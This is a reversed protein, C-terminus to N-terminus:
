PGICPEPDQAAIYIIKAIQERFANSNPRFYPRQRSDCPEGPGGCAYGTIATRCFLTGIYANFPDNAPVDAFTQGLIQGVTPWGAGAVIIKALQARTVLASPRFYPRQESDCPENSGGCTYGTVVGDDAAAEVYQFYTNSPTVDAFTYQGAPPLTGGLDFALTVIKVMQGRTTNNYPRFTGDSYGSIFANCYLFQVYPYFFASSPVDSFGTVCATATATPSLVVPTSTATAPTGTPTTTGGGPLPGIGSTITLPGHSLDFFINNACAVQVRGDTAGGAPVTITQSGNNAVAAALITPFTQGGDNSLRINVLPCSVPAQDTNAVNWTVTQSSGVTWTDTLPATVAFPGAATTTTIAVSGYAVGGGGARNDRAVLRFNLTRNTTPLTEGLATLNSTLLNALRPFSRTPSSGPLYSRFLPRSGDDNDPPSATGLDHEEWTYTLADGNPDTAAGTLQFPTNIPITYAPGADVVPPDNGTPTQVGCSGNEGATYDVIQDFSSNLFYPDSRNQINSDGCLGAYGMITSGTGPEYAAQASRGQTCSGSGVANYTHQGGFQHGIEHAVLEIAYPDGVPNTSATAGGAKYTGNCVVGVYAIGGGDAAAFVHGIDYNAAGIVLDLNDQNQKLMASPDDNTYPDAAGPTYIIATENAILTMRVAVEREFVADLRNVATTIAALAQAATGGQFATYQSTAAVALRYTRLVTGVSPAPATAPLRLGRREPSPLDRLGAPQPYAQGFYSVYHSVDGRSYPDLYITGAATQILGHLGAPTRDLRGGASPDDIGQATYTHIAPFQAALAPALISSEEIRFWGYGGQPLPLALTQPRKGATVSHELPVAALATALAAPDLAVTRYHTPRIDRPGQLAFSGEAVDQWLTQTAPHAVTPPLSSPVSGAYLPPGGPLVALLLAAGTLSGAVLLHGRESGSVQRHDQGTRSRRSLVVWGGVLAIAVLIGVTIIM